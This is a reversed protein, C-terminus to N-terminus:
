SSGDPAVNLVARVSDLLVKDNFPKGLIVAAGARMAQSRLRSDGYATIFIIPIRCGEEALRAQLELGSMQPMRVDSILCATTRREASCLFEGASAFSRPEYGASKLVGYVACRASEDDDVIAILRNNEGANM